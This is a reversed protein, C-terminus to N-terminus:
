FGQHGSMRPLVIIFLAGFCISKLTVNIQVKIIPIWFIQQLHKGAIVTDEPVFVITTPGATASGEQIASDIDQYLQAMTTSPETIAEAVFILSGRRIEIVTVGYITDTKKQMM